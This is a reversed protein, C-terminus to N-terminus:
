ARDRVMTFTGIITKTHGDINKKFDGATALKSDLPFCAAVFDDAGNSIQNRVSRLHRVITLLAATPSIRPHGIDVFGWMCYAVDKALLGAGAWSLPWPVKPMLIKYVIRAWQGWHWTSTSM